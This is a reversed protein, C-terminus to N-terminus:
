EAWWEWGLRRAIYGVLWFIPLLPALVVCPLIRAFVICLGDKADEVVQNSM